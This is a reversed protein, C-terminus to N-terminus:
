TALEAGLRDLLAIWGGKRREPGDAGEFFAGQHTFILETGQPTALLEFTVLSASFPRGNMAMVSGIVVRRNTVIDLHHGESSLEAGPFPTRENMRYVSREIGGPRFEMEFSKVDHTGGEAYWRRKKAPDSLAAFVQEVPKAYSRTIVFTDHIVTQESM